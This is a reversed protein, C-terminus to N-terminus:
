VFMFLISDCEHVMGQLLVHLQYIVEGDMALFSVVTGALGNVCPEICLHLLCFSYLPHTSTTIM